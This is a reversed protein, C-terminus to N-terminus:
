DIIFAPQAQAIEPCGSDQALLLGIEKEAVLRPNGYITNLPTRPPVAPKLVGTACGTPVPPRRDIESLETNTRMEVYLTGKHRVVAFTCPEAGAYAFRVSKGDDDLRAGVVPLSSNGSRCASTESPADSDGGCGFLALAVIVLGVTFVALAIGREPAMSM